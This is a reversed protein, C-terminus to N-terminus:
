RAAESTDEHAPPIHKYLHCATIWRRFNGDDFSYPFSVESLGVDWFHAAWRLLLLESSSWGRHGHDLEQVVPWISRSALIEPGLATWAKLCGTLLYVAAQWEGWDDDHLLSAQAFTPDNDCLGDIWVLFQQDRSRLRTLIAQIPQDDHPQV